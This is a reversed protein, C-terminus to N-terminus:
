SMGDAFFLPCVSHRAALQCLLCFVPGSSLACSPPTDACGGTRRDASGDSSSESLRPPATALLRLGGRTHGLCPRGTGAPDGTPAHGRAAACSRTTLPSPGPAPSAEPFPSRSSTDLFPQMQLCGGAKHQSGGSHSRPPPHTHLARPPCGPCGPTRLGRAPIVDVCRPLRLCAPLSRPEQCLQAAMSPVHLALPLSFLPLKLAGHPPFATWTGSPITYGRGGLPM